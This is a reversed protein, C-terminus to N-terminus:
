EYAALSAQWHGSIRSYLFYLRGKGGQGGAGAVAARLVAYPPWARDPGAASSAHPPPRLPTRTRLGRSPRHPFAPLPVHAQIM